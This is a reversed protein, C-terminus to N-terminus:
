PTCSSATVNVFSFSAGTAARPVSVVHVAQSTVPPCPPCNAPRHVEGVRINLAGGNSEVSQIEAKACGDGLEGLAGLILLRDDFNVAPIPPKPSVHSQLEDWVDVWRSERSIIEGRRTRIGSMSNQYVTTFAIPGDPGTPSSEGGCGIVLIALLSARLFRKM